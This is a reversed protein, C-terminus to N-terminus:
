LQKEFCYRLSGYKEEEAIKQLGLKNIIRVSPTNSPLATACLYKVKFEELLGMEKLFPIYDNAVAEAAESVFGKGQASLKIAYGLDLKEQFKTLSIFGLIENNTSSLITFTSFPNGELWKFKRGVLFLLSDMKSKVTGTSLTKMVEPDSLVDNYLAKFDHLDCSRLILRDTLIIVEIENSSKNKSFHIETQKSSLM